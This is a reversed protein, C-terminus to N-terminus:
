VASPPSSHARSAQADSSALGDEVTQDPADGTKASRCLAVLGVCLLVWVLMALGLMLVLPM